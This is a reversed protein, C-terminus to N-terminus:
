LLRIINTDYVHVLNQAADYTLYTTMSEQM